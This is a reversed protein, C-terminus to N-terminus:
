ATKIKYEVGIGYITTPEDLVSNTIEFRIQRGKERFGIKQFVVDVFGLIDIGLDWEGFSTSENLALNTTTSVYDVVTVLVASTAVGYQRAMVFLKRFKKFNIMAEGDFTKTQFYFSIAVGDDNYTDVEIYTGPSVPDEIRKYNAKWMLGATNSAMYLDNDWKVYVSVQPATDLTWAGKNLYWRLVINDEPFCVKYQQDHFVAVAKSLGTLNKFTPAIKESLYQVNMATNSAVVNTLAYIGYKSVFVVANGVIVLCRHSTCGIEPHTTRLVFSEALAPDRQKGYLTHISDETFMCLTDRFNIMGTIPSGNTATVDFYYSTPFYLKPFASSIGVVTHYVNQPADPNGSLFLADWHLKILLCKHISETTSRLSNTGIDATESITPVHPIALSANVGEYTCLGAGTTFYCRDNYNVFEVASTLPIVVSTTNVVPPATATPVTNGSDTWTAVDGLSIILVNNRYVDYSTAGYVKDWTVVIPYPTAGTTGRSVSSLTTAGAADKAVIGYDYNTSAVLNAGVAGSGQVTALVAQPVHRRIFVQVWSGTGLWTTLNATSYRYLKSDHVALLEKVTYRRFLYAGQIKGTGLTAVIKTFGKRKSASGKEDIDINTGEVFEDDAVQHLAVATNLGGSFNPFMQVRKGSKTNPRSRM